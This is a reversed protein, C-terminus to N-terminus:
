RIIPVGGRKQGHPCPRPPWGKSCDCVAGNVTLNECGVCEEDM